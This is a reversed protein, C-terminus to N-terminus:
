KLPQPQVYVVVFAIKKNIQGFDSKADSMYKEPNEDFELKCMPGCFYYTKGKYESKWKSTKEDVNMGCVVDTEM